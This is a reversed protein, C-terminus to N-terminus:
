GKKLLGLIQILAAGGIGIALLTTLQKLPDPTEPALTKRAERIEKMIEGVKTSPPPNEETIEKIDEICESYDKHKLCEEFITNVTEWYVKDAGYIDEIAEALSSAATAMSWYYAIIVAAVTAATVALAVAAIVAPAVPCGIRMVGQVEVEVPEGYLITRSVSGEVIRTERVEVEADVGMRALEEEVGQKFARAVHELFKRTVAEEQGILLRLMDLLDPVLERARFRYTFKLSIRRYVGRELMLKKGAELFAWLEDSLVVHDVGDIVRHELRPLLLYTYYLRGIPRYVGSVRTYLEAVAPYAGPEGNDVVDIIIGHMGGRDLHRESCLRGFDERGPIWTCVMYDGAYDVDVIFMLRGPEGREIFGTHELVPKYFEVGVIRGRLLPYLLVPLEEETCARRGRQEVCVRVRTAHRTFPTELVTRPRDLRRRYVLTGDLYVEYVVPQDAVGELELYIRLVDWTLLEVWTIEVYM